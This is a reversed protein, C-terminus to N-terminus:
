IRVLLVVDFLRGLSLDEIGAQVTEAGRVRALMEASEDVAVVPRGLATLASTVRGTGSGLELISTGGPVAAHIIGPDAGAPLL